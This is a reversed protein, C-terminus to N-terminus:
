EAPVEPSEVVGSDNMISDLLYRIKVHDASDLVNEYFSDPFQESTNNTTQGAILMIAKIFLPLIILVSSGGVITRRSKVKVRVKNRGRATLRVQHGFDLSDRFELMGRDILRDVAPREIGPLLQAIQSLSQWEDNQLAGLYTLLTKGQYEISAL